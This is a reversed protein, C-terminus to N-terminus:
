TSVRESRELVSTVARHLAAARIPKELFGDPRAEGAGPVADLGSSRPASSVMVIPVRATAPDRRFRQALAVGETPTSLMIDLLLLDPLAERIAEEGAAATAYCSVQYGAPELMLRVVEHMDPDDDILVIHAQRERM